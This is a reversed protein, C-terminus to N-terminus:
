EIHPGELGTGACDPCPMYGGSMDADYSHSPTGAAVIVTSGFCRRCLCADAGGIPSPKANGFISGTNIILAEADQMQQRFESYISHADDSLRDIVRLADEASLASLDAFLGQMEVRGDPFDHIPKM